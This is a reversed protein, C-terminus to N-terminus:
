QASSSIASHFFPPGSHNQVTKARLGLEVGEHAAFSELVVGVMVPATGTTARAPAKAEEPAIDILPRLAKVPENIEVYKDRDVRMRGENGNRRTDIDVPRFVITNVHRRLLMEPFIASVMVVSAVKVQHCYVTGEGLSM